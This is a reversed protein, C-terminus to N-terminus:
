TGSSAPAVNQAAVALRMAARYDDVDSQPFRWPGVIRLRYANPFRGAARERQVTDVSCGLASAVEKTSLDGILARVGELSFQHQSAVVLRQM